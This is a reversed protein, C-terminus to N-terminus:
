DIVFLWVANRCGPKQKANTGSAPSSGAHTIRELSKSDRADVSKVV